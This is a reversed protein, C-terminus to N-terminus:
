GIETKVTPYLGYKKYVDKIISKLEEEGVNKNEEVDFLVLADHLHVAKYGREWCRCLIERFLRSEIM